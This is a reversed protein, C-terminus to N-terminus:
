GSGPKPRKFMYSTGDRSVLEWGEEGLKDIYSRFPLRRSSLDEENIEYVYSTKSKLDQLRIIEVYEWRQM